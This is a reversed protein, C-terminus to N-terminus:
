AAPGGLITANEVRQARQEALLQMLTSTQKRYEVLAPDDRGTALAMFQSIGESSRIDNAQLAESSKGNLLAANEGQFESAKSVAKDMSENSKTANKVAQEQEKEAKLMSAHVANEWANQHQEAEREDQLLSNHVAQEWANQHQESEREAKLLSDQVANEWAEQHRAAAQMEKDFGEAAPSSGAAAAPAVSGAGTGSGAAFARGIVPVKAMMEYFGDLKQHVYDIKDAIFDFASNMGGRIADALNSLGVIFPSLFTNLAAGALRLVVGVGQALIGVLKMAGEAVTGLMTGFPQLLSAVPAALANVGAMIETLGNTLAASGSNIAAFAGTFPVALTRGFSEFVTASRKGATDVEDLAVALDDFHGVDIESMAVGLKVIDDRAVGAALARDIQLANVTVGLRQAEEALGGIATATEYAQDKAALFQRGLNLALLGAGIFPNTLGVVASALVGAGGGGIALGVGLAKAALILTRAAMAGKLASMAFQGIAAPNRVASFVKWQLYTWAVDKGFAIVSIGAEAMSKVSDGVGQAADTVRNLVNETASLGNRFKSVTGEAEALQADAKAVARNYVEQTLAGKELYKDLKSITSAYVETPTQLERTIKAADRFMASSKQSAEGVSKLQANAKDVGAAMGSANASLQFALDLKAM